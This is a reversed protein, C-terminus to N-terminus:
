SLEDIWSSSSFFLHYLLDFVVVRRANHKIIDVLEERVDLPIHFGYPYKVRVLVLNEPPMPKIKGRVGEAINKLLSVIRRVMQRAFSEAVVRYVIYGDYEFVEIKFLCRYPNTDRPLGLFSFDRCGILNDIAQLVRDLNYYKTKRHVYMYERYIAWYRPHFEGLTDIRYAWAYIRPKLTNIYEILELPKCITELTITQGIASVGKDTRGSAAYRASNLSEICKYSKLVKEIEGEVTRVNPQRQFGHYSTGDYLIRLAVRYRM